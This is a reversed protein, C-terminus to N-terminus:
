GPEPPPRPPYPNVTSPPEPKLWEEGGGTQLAQNTNMPPAQIAPLEARYLPAIRLRPTEYALHIASLPTALLLCIVFTSRRSTRQTSRDVIEVTLYRIRTALESPAGLAVTAALHEGRAKDLLLSAYDTSDVGSALVRDDCAQEASLSLQNLLHRIGPLPWFLIAIWQVLLLSAWDGRQVHALEHAMVMGRERPPWHAAELPLLIIPRLMGWSLPATIENSFKVRVSKLGTDAPAQWEPGAPQARHSFQAVHLIDRTLRAAKFLAIAIYLTFLIQVWVSNTSAVDTATRSLAPLALTPTIWSLLPLLALCLGTGLWIRHRAAASSLAFQSGFYSGLAVILLAKVGLELLGILPLTAIWDSM